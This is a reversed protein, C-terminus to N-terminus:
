WLLQHGTFGWGNMTFSEFVVTSSQFLGLEGFIPGSGLVEADIVVMELVISFPSFNFNHGNSGFSLQRIDQGVELLWIMRTDGCM